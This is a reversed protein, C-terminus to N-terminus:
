TARQGSCRCRCESRQCNCPADILGTRRGAISEAISWDTGRDSCEAIRLQAAAVPQDRLIQVVFMGPLEALFEAQRRIEAPREIEADAAIIQMIFRLLIIVDEDIRQGQGCIGPTVVPLEGICVSGHTGPTESLEFQRTPPKAIRLGSYAWRMPCRPRCRM